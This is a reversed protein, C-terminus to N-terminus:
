RGSDGPRGTSPQSPAALQIQVLPPDGWNKLLAARLSRDDKGGIRAELQRELAELADRAANRLSESAPSFHVIRARGDDPDDRVVVLGRDHLDRLMQSIAQR